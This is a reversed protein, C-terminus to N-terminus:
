RKSKTKAQKEELARLKEELKELKERTKLLVRAQIDFEKRTVLDLKHFSATLAQKVNKEIDEGLEKVGPPLARTIKKVLDDFFKPNDM